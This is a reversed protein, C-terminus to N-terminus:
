KKSFLKFTASDKCCSKYITKFGENESKLHQETNKANLLSYDTLSNVYNACQNQYNINVVCYNVRNNYISFVLVSLGILSFSYIILLIKTKLSKFM